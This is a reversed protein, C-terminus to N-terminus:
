GPPGPAAAGPELVILYLDPSSANTGPPAYVNDLIVEIKNLGAEFDILRSVVWQEGVPEGFADNDYLTASQTQGSPGSVRLILRDDIGAGVLTAPDASVVIPGRSEPIIATTTNSSFIGVPQHSSAFADILKIPRPVFVPRSVEGSFEGTVTLKYGGLPGPLRARVNVFYVGTSPSTWEEILSSGQNENFKLRSAGDTSWLGLHSSSLSVVDVAFGYTSGAQAGFSYWDGDSKVELDGVIPANDSVWTAGNTENAHDDPEGTISLSYTGSKTRVLSRMNVFYVGDLPATWELRSPGRSDDFMLRTEGDLDYLSISSDALSVMDATIRYVWDEQALFSFWDEDSTVELDGGSTVYSAVDKSIPVLKAEASINGYLDPEGSVTLTYTGAKTHVMSRMYIFYTGDAPAVWEIRSPGRRENFSIRTAGDTEYLSIGSDGLSVLDASIRYAWGAQAPFSFWDRDDPVELDGAMVVTNAVDTGLPIATATASQNGHEDPEGSITFTYTGAQTSVRSRMGVFYTGDAPATWELRSSGLGEDFRLRTVGDTGFLSIHSDVLSVVDAAISYASGAKAPFSFWDNDDDRELDGNVTVYNAIDTRLPVSTATSSGGGHEDAAAGSIRDGYGNSEGTLSLSYAGTVDGQPAGVTLFYTGSIPAVWEINSAEDIGDDIRLRAVADTDYITLRSETLSELSVAVRYVWGAQASFTFWDSDGHVELNGTAAGSTGPSAGQLAITTAAGPIDAHDDGEAEIALTYTGLLNNKPSRVNAYYTGSDPAVWEIRSAQGEGGNDDVRLRTTGDLDLLGLYSDALTGLGTTIRYVSGKHAIFAFWDDDGIAELEGSLTGGIPAMTAAVSGEGHDDGRSSITLSYSGTPGQEGSSVSVYHTGTTPAVWNILSTEGSGGDEDTLIRLNGDQAVLRLFPDRLSGPSAAIEYVWGSKTLFSFWDEDGLEEM